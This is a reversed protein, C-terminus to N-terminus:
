RVAPPAGRPHRSVHPTRNGESRDELWASALLLAGAVLLPVDLAGLALPLWNTGLVELVISAAIPLLGLGILLWGADRVHRVALVSVPAALALTAVARVPGAQDEFTEWATPVLVSWLYVLAMTAVLVVLVLGATEPRRWALLALLGSPVVWLAVLAAATWGGPDAFAEGVVFLGFLAVYMAALILGAGRAARAPDDRRVIAYVVSPAFLVLALPLLWFFEM